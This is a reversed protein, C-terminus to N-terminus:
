KIQYDNVTEDRRNQMWNYIKELILYAAGLVILWGAIIFGFVLVYGTIGDLSWEVLGSVHMLVSSLVERSAIPWITLILVTGFCFVMTAIFAQVEGSMARRNM